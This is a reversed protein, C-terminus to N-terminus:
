DQNTRATVIREHFRAPWRRTPLVMVAVYASVALALRVLPHWGATMWIVGALLVTAGAITALPWWLAASLQRRSVIGLSVLLLTHGGLMGFSAGLNGFWPVLVLCGILALLASAFLSPFYEAQRDQAILSNGLFWGVSLLPYSVALVQFVRSATPFRDGYLLSILDPGLLVGGVAAPVLGALVLALYLNFGRRFGARSESALRSLRPLLAKWLVEM